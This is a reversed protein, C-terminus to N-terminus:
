LNKQFSREIEDMDRESVYEHIPLTLIRESIFKANNFDGTMGSRPPIGPQENLPWPYMGTAGLRKKKLEALIADRQEKKKLVLPFRLLSIKDGNLEPFFAFIDRYPELRKLYTQSLEVRKGRIREFELVLREGLNLAQEKMQEVKFDLTFITEGLRLFPISQPILYFGPHFFSMYSILNFLYRMHSLVGDPRHLSEHDKKLCDEFTRENVLIAGGELLSLPKGRGFSFIGIDGFTGLMGNELRLPNSIGKPVYQAPLENGFAQCADEILVVGHVEAIKRLSLLDEPIGFLHVAVLALTDSRIKSELWELDMRFSYGQFDCLVPSLGGKIVAAIVSPCTYAPIIVQDKGLQKKLSRLTITLAATGSSAFYVPRNGVLRQVFNQGKSDRFFAGLVDRLHIPHGAPPLSRTM